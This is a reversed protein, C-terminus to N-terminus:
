SPCHTVSDDSFSLTFFYVTLGQLFLYECSLIVNIICTCFYANLLSTSQIISLNISLTSKIKNQWLGVFIVNIELYECFMYFSLLTPPFFHNLGVNSVSLLFCLLFFLNFIIFGYFLMDCLCIFCYSVRNFCM